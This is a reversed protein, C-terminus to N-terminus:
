FADRILAPKRGNGNSQSIRALDVAATMNAQEERRHRETLDAINALADRALMKMWPVLNVAAVLDAARKDANTRVPCVEGIALAEASSLPELTLQEEKKEGKEDTGSFRSSLYWGPQSSGSYPTQGPSNVWIRIELYPM